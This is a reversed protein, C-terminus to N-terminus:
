EKQSLRDEIMEEVEERSYQDTRWEFGTSKLDGKMTLLYHGKGRAVAEKQISDTAISQGIVLGAILCVVGITLGKLDIVM